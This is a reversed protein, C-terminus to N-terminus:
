HLQFSQNVQYHKKGMTKGSLPHIQTFRSSAPLTLNISQCHVQHYRDDHQHVQQNRHHGVRVLPDLSLTVSLPLEPSGFEDPAHVLSGGGRGRQVEYQFDKYPCLLQEVVSTPIRM